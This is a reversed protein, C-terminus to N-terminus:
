CPVDCWAMDYGQSTTITAYLGIHDTGTATIKTAMDREKPPTTNTCQGM